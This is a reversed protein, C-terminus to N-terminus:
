TDSAAANTSGPTLSVNEVVHLEYWHSKLTAEMRERTAERWRQESAVVVHTASLEDAVRHLSELRAQEERGSTHLRDRKTAEGIWLASGARVVIDLEHAAGDEHRLELEFAFDVHDPSLPAMLDIATFLPLHGNHTMFRRVVDDLAYHWEPEVAGLWSAKSPRQELRCSKCRFVPDAESMTYFAAARCRQCKLALGRTLAGADEFQGLVTESNREGILACVDAHTMYRRRDWLEKGIECTSASFCDIVKRAAPDRLVGALAFEGGFLLASEVAYVGKDSQTVRWGRTEVLARVQEGLQLPALHPRVAASKASMGAFTIPQPSLYSPAERAVRVRDDDVSNGPLVAQAVATDRIAGWGTVYVDTVWRLEHVESTTVHVPAPTPLDTSRGDILYIPQATDISDREYLRNPGEPLVSEWDAIMLDFRRPRRGSMQTQWHTLKAVGEHAVDSGSTSVVVAGRALAQRGEVAGILGRCYVEDDLSSRPVWYALAQWRRLAYFLAFDWPDDGV